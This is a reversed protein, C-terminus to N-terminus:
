VSGTFGLGNAPCSAEVASCGGEEAAEEGSAGREWARWVGGACGGAQSAMGGAWALLLVGAGLVM